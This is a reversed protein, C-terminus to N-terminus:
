NVLCRAKSMIKKANRKKIQVTYFKKGFYVRLAVPTHAALQEFDSPRCAYFIQYATVVQAYETTGIVSTTPPADTLALFTLPKQGELAIMLTDNPVIQDNMEGPFLLSLVLGPADDTKTLTMKWSKAIRCVMGVSRKGSFQDVQDFDFKCKQADATKLLIFCFLVCCLMKISKM